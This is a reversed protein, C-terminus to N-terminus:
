GKERVSDRSAVDVLVGEARVQKSRLAAVARDLADQQIDAIMVNMGERGFAEAM